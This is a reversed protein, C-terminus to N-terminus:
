AAAQAVISAWADGCAAGKNWSIPSCDAGSAQQAAYLASAIAGVTQNGIKGDVGIEQDQATALGERKLYKMVLNYQRQFAKVAEKVSSREWMLRHDPWGSMDGPGIDYGLMMLAQAFSAEDSFIHKDTWGTWGTGVWNGTTSGGGGPKPKPTPTPAPQGNSPPAPAPKKKKKPKADRTAVYGIGLLTAAAAAIALGRM